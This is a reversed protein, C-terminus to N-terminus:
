VSRRLHRMDRERITRHRMDATREYLGYFFERHSDTFAEGRRGMVTAATTFIQRLDQQEQIQGHNVQCFSPVVQPLLRGAPLLNSFAGIASGTNLFAGLGTKSHDGIFSGIKSRGTAVRQGAVSVRVEGYDNRLDSTQ